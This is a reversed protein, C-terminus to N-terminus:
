EQRTTIEVTSTTMLRHIPCRNSIETLRALQKADLDGHFNMLVELRYVGHREDREDRKVTVTVGELPWEKRYAYMQATIAKCAALSLDFYDHPDPASEDGGVIRPSDVFLDEFSDFVARQRYKGERESIVTITM